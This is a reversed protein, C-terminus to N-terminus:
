GALWVFVAVLAFMILLAVTAVMGSIRANSMPKGSKRNLMATGGPLPEFRIPPIDETYTGILTLRPDPHLTAGQGGFAASFVILLAGQVAALRAFDAAVQNQAVGNGDTLYACLGIAAIDDSHFLETFASDIHEVGLLAAIPNRADHEPDYEPFENAPDLSFAYGPPPGQDRLRAIEAQTMDLAFLRLTKQEGKPIIIQTM